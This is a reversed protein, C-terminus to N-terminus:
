KLIICVPFKNMVVFHYIIHNMTRLLLLSHVYFIQIKELSIQNLFFMGTEPDITDDYISVSKLVIEDPIFDVFMDINKENVGDLVGNITVTKFNDILGLNM